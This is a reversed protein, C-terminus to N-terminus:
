KFALPKINLSEGQWEKVFKVADSEKKFTALPEQSNYVVYCVVGAAKRSKLDEWKLGNAVEIFDKLISIEICMVLATKTGDTNKFLYQGFGNCEVSAPTGLFNVVMKIYDLNFCVGDSTQILRTPVGLGKYGGGHKFTKFSKWQVPEGANLLKEYEPMIVPEMEQKTIPNIYKNTNGADASEVLLIHNNTSIYEKREANYYVCPFKDCYLKYLM